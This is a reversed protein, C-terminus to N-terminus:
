DAFPTFIDFRNDDVPLFGRVHGQNRVQLSCSLVRAGRRYAFNRMEPARWRATRSRIAPELSVPTSFRVPAPTLSGFVEQSGGAIGGNSLARPSFVSAERTASARPPRAVPWASPDRAGRRALPARRGLPRVPRMSRVVASKAPAIPVMSVSDPCDSRLEAYVRVGRVGGGLPYGATPAPGPVGQTAPVHRPIRHTRSTM